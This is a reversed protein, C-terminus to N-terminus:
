QGGAMKSRIEELKKIESRSLYGTTQLKQVLPAAEALLKQENEVQQTSIPPGTVKSQTSSEKPRTLEGAIRRAQQINQMAIDAKQQPSMADDQRDLSTAANTNIKGIETLAIKTLDDGGGKMEELDGDKKIYFRDEQGAAVGRARKYEKIAKARVQEDPIKAFEALPDAARQQPNFTKLDLTGDANILAALGNTADVEGPALETMQGNQGRVRLRPGKPRPRGQQALQMEQAIKQIRDAYESAPRGDTGGSEQFLRIQDDIQHQEDFLSDIKQQDPQNEWGGSASTMNQINQDFVARAKLAAATAEAEGQQVYSMQTANALLEPVKPGGSLAQQYLGGLPIGMKAAYRSLNEKEEASPVYGYAASDQSAQNVRSLVGGAAALPGALDGSQAGQAFQAGLGAGTLGAQLAGATSLVGGSGLLGSTPAAWAAGLGVAEGAATGAPVGGAAGALGLAPAALLGIGAGAAAGIGATLLNRQRIREQARAQEEQYRQIQAANASPLISNWLFNPREFILPM